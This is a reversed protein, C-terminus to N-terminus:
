REPGPDVVNVTQWQELLAARHEEARAAIERLEAKRPKDGKKKPNKPWVVRFMEESERMFSVTIEWEGTKEIHFHPPLHDGSNFWLDFGALEFAQVKAVTRFTVRLVNIDIIM